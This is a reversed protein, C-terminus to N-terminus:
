KTAPLLNKSMREIYAAIAVLDPRKGEEGFLWQALVQSTGSIMFTAAMRRETNEGSECAQMLRQELKSVFADKRGRYVERLEEAYKETASLLGHVYAKPSEFLNKKESFASMLKEMCNEELENALAYSDVYHKYFTTKNIMALECIDKVKIKELSYKNRLSLFAQKIQNKTKVIRLDM